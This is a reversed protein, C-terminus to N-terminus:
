SAILVAPFSGQKILQGTGVLMHPVKGADGHLSFLSGDPIVRVRRQYVQRSDIGEGRIGVLLDDGPIKQHFLM